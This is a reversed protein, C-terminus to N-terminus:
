TVNHREGKTPFQLSDARMAAQHKRLHALRESISLMLDTRTECDEFPELLLAHRSVVTTTHSSWRVIAKHGALKCVTGKISPADRLCVRDGIKM